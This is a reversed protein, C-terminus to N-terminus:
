TLTRAWCAPGSPDWAPNMSLSTRSRYRTGNPLQISCALSQILSLRSQSSAIMSHGKLTSFSRSTWSTMCGIDQTPTTAANRTIPVRTRLRFTPTKAPTAMAKHPNRPSMNQRGVISVILKTITATSAHTTMPSGRPTAQPRISETQCTTLGIRSPMCTIWAKTYM